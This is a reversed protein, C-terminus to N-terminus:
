KLTRAGGGSPTADAEWLDTAGPEGVPVISFDPGRRAALKEGGAGCRQGAGKPLRLPFGRPVSLRARAAKTFAPNLAHLTQETVGCKAALSRVKASAALAVLEFTLPKPFALKPFYRRVNKLVHLSALFSSYYNRSNGMWRGPKWDRVIVGLDFSKVSKAARLMRDPGCNYATIVLPWEKLFGKMELLMRAAADTAIIPDRREDLLDNIHLYKKGTKKLFQWVGHAKAWSTANANFLSETMALAVLETSVGNRALIEEVYPRYEALRRLGKAFHDRWGTRTGIRRAAGALLAERGAYLKLLRAETESLNKRKGKALRGLVGALRSRERMAARRRQGDGFARLDLTGLLIDLAKRDYFLQTNSDFEGYIRVRLRVNPRLIPPTVFTESQYIPPEARASALAGGLVAVAAVTVALSRRM